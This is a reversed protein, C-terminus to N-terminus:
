KKEVKIQEVKEFVEKSLKKVVRELIRLSKAARENAIQFATKYESM